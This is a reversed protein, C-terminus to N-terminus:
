DGLNYKQNYNEKQKFRGSQQDYLFIFQVPIIKFPNQSSYIVEEDNTIERDFWVGTKSQGQVFVIKGNFSLDNFGDQNFDYIQIILENPENVTNDENANYTQLPYALKEQLVNKLGNKTIRYLQHGGNGKGTVTVTLLFPKKNPFITLFDYRLADFVQILKGTSTLLLQYKWPFAATCGKKFDYEIFIYDETSGYIKVKKYVTIEETKQNPDSIDELNFVRKLESIFHNTDAIIPYDRVFTFVSDKTHNAATVIQNETKSIPTSCSAILTTFVTIWIIQKM